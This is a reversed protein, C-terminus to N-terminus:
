FVPSICARMELALTGLTICIDNQAGYDCRRQCEQVPLLNFGLPFQLGTMYYDHLDDFYITLAVQSLNDFSQIPLWELVATGTTQRFIDAIFCPNNTSILFAKVTVPVSVTLPLIKCDSRRIESFYTGNLVELGEITYSEQFNAGYARIYRPSDLESIELAYGTIPQSSRDSLEAFFTAKTILFDELPTKRCNATGLGLPNNCATNVTDTGYLLFKRNIIQFTEANNCWVDKYGLSTEFWIGFYDTVGGFARLGMDYQFCPYADTFASDRIFVTLKNGEVDYQQFSGSLNSCAEPITPRCLGEAVQITCSFFKFTKSLCNTYTTTELVYTDNIQNLGFVGWYVSKYPNSPDGCAITGHDELAAPFNSLTIRKQTAYRGRLEPETCECEVPCFCDAAAGCCGCEGSPGHWAM